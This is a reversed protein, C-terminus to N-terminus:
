RTHESQRDRILALVLALNIEPHPRELLLLRDGPQGVRLYWCARLTCQV